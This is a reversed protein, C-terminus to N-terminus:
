TRAEDGGSRPASYKLSPRSSRKHTSIVSSRSQKTVSGRKATLSQRKTPAPPLERPSGSGGKRTDELGSGSGDSDSDDSDKRTDENFASALSMRSKFKLNSLSQRRSQHATASLSHAISHSISHALSTIQSVFCSVAPSM